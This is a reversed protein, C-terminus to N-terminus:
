RPDTFWGIVETLMEPPIPGPTVTFHAMRGVTAEKHVLKEVGTYYPRDEYDDFLVTTPRTARMRVAALCAARFRGDILVLDPTGLDPRDWVSLAYHHYSSHFRRRTPFGWKETPGIAVHHVVASDGAAALRASLADAWAKDSEVSRITKGLKAALLTSGGSGYELIVSAKAYMEQVLAAEKRPFTMVFGPAAPAAVPTAPVTVAVTAAPKGVAMPAAVADADALIAQVLGESRGVAGAVAPIKRLRAIERTVQAEWHLITRDETENRDHAAYFEATHRLNAAGVANPKYGRGRNRKLAFFEPTRVIYHNVQALAWGFENPFVRAAGRVDAGSLWVRHKRSAPDASNGTGVVVSDVTLHSPNALLPRTLCQQGFSRVSASHRFLTKHELNAVFDATSASVFGPGIFRGAFRQQHGSGFVRWNILAFQRGQMADTLASVTRDGVHVNLFEDADLFIYWDGDRYGIDSTFKRSALIQPSRGAPVTVQLHRIEGSAALAALVEEMGDNSPNSCIVIEDFGIVKHYAIWELVFPAENKMASFLVKRQVGSVGPASATPLDSPLALSGESTM